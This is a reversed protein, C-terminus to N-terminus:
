SEYKSIKRKIYVILTDPLLSYFFIFLRNIIGPLVLKKRCFLGNLAKKVLKDPPLIVGLRIGLLQYEKKLHYLNTAVAGPTVTTVGVNFPKMELYFSYSFTKLYSKTASYMAIGPAPLWASLSSMNLIYGKGRKKMENGFYRCLMSPTFVHLNVMTELHSTDSQSIDKFFFIGANNILIDIEYKKECCFLYLDSAANQVSLDAYHPIATVGYLANLESSVSQLKEKENSVLLLDIGMAALQKAYAYGIGSSAGTVLAMKIHETIKLRSM